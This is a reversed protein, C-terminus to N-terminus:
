CHQWFVKSNQWVDTQCFELNQWILCFKTLGFKKIFGITLSHETNNEIM